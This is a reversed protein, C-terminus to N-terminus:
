PEETPKLADALNIIHAQPPEPTVEHSAHAEAIQRTIGAAVDAAHAVMVERVETILDSAFQLAQEPTLAEYNGGVYIHIQNLGQVITPM